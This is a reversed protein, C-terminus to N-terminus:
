QHGVLPSVASQFNLPPNSAWITFEIVNRFKEGIPKPRYNLSIQLFHIQQTRRVCAQDLHSVHRLLLFVPNSYMDSFDFLLIDTIFLKFTRCFQKGEVIVSIALKVKLIAFKISPAM